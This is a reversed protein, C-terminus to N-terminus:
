QPQKTWTTGNIQRTYTGIKDALYKTRLDGIYGDEIGDENNGFAKLDFNDSYIV